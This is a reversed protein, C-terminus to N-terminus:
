KPIAVVKADPLNFQNGYNEIKGMVFSLIDNIQKQSVNKNEYTFTNENFFNSAGNNMTM